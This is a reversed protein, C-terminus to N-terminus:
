KEPTNVRALGKVRSDIEELYELDIIHLFNDKDRITVEKLEKNMSIAIGEVMRGRGRTSNFTLKNGRYVPGYFRIESSEM